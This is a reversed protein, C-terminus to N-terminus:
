RVRSVELLPRSVLDFENWFEVSQPEFVEIERMATEPVPPNLRHGATAGAKLRAAIPELGVVM